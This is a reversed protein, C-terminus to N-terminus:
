DQEWITLGNNSIQYAKIQNQMDQEDQFLSSLQSEYAAIGAQWAILGQESIFYSNPALNSIASDLEGAHRFLYPIDAYYGIHRGLSEVAKRTIVHDVHGGLALPCIIVDTENISQSIQNAVMEIIDSDDSHIPDFVDITYLLQGASNRRYIADVARFHRVTAGVVRAANKDEQRRLIVTEQPTGTKWVLHIRKILESLPGPPPDGAMITWIEVTTGRHALEWILGGCSLVADDFHPSIFIWRM